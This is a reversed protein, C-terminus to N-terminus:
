ACGDYANTRTHIRTYITGRRRRDRNNNAPEVNAQRHTVATATAHPEYVCTHTHTHTYLPTDVPLLSVKVLSEEHITCM